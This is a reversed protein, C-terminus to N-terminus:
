FLSAKPNEKKYLDKYFKLDLKKESESGDQNEKIFGHYSPYLRSNASVLRIVEFERQEKNVLSSIIIEQYEKEGSDVREISFNNGENWFTQKFERKNLGIEVVVHIFLLEELSHELYEHLHCYRVSSNLTIKEGKDLEFYQDLTIDLSQWDLKSKVIYRFVLNMKM